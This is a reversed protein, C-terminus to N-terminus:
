GERYAVEEKWGQKREMRKEDDERTIERAVEKIKRDMEKTGKM